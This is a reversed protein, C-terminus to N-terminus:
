PAGGDLATLLAGGEEFLARRDTGSPPAYRAAEVKQFFGVVRDALDDACGADRLFPGLRAEDLAAVSGGYAAGLADLVVARVERLDKQAYAADFRQRRSREAKDRRPRARRRLWIHLAVALGTLAFLGLWIDNRRYLPGQGGAPTLGTHVPRPNQTLVRPGAATTGATGGAPAEAVDVIIRATRDVEYTQANPNYYHFELPPVILRGARVPQVLIEAVKEGFLTDNQVNKSETQTPPFLRAGELTTPLEPLEVRAPNGRGRVRITLTVAQGVHTRRPSVQADLRWMGINGANFDLPKNKAPLADVELPVPDSRLVYTKGRRWFGDTVQVTARVEGVEARGDRLAFLAAKHLTYSYFRKNGVTRETLRARGTDFKEVWFGDLKPLDIKQVEVPREAYVDVTMTVQEGVVVHDKSLQVDLFYPANKGPTKRAPARSVEIVIPPATSVQTGVKASAAGIKHRGASTATLLFTYTTTATVNRQGGGFSMQQQQSKSQREVSFDSVDPLNLTDVQGGGRVTVIVDLQFTEDVAVQQANVQMSIDVADAAQATAPAWLALLFLARGIM